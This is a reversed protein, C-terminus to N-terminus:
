VLCEWNGALNPGAWVSRYSLRSCSRTEYLYCIWAISDNLKIHIDSNFMLIISGLSVKVIGM